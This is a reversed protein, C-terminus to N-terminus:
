ADHRNSSFISIDLGHFTMGKDPTKNSVDGILVEGHNAIGAQKGLSAFFLVYGPATNCQILGFWVIGIGIRM